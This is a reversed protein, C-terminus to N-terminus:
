SFLLERRACVLDSKLCFIIEVLGASFSKIGISLYDLREFLNLKLIKIMLIDSGNDIGLSLDNEKEGSGSHATKKTASMPM